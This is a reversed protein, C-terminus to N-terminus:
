GAIVEMQSSSVYTSDGVCHSIPDAPKVFGVPPQFDYRVKCWGRDAQMHRLGAQEKKKVSGNTRSLSALVKSSSTQLNREM